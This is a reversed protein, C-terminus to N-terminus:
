PLPPHVQRGPVARRASETLLRWYAAADFEGPPLPDPLLAFFEALSLIQPSLRLMKSLMTSGCRGGSVVFVGPLGPAAIM